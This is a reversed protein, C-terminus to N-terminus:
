DAPLYGVSQAFLVRQHVKLGLHETLGARDCNHFWAALGHAAAFLYVNGAILGVDVYYYSKQVEPDHLGPEDFGATHTLRDVDVVYILMAPAVTVGPEGPTLASARVDGGTIRALRHGPGDYRYTGDALAVYLDIEQSNSASAATRGPAGFPGAERNVGYASWLLDSLDRISLPEPGSERTTKRRMFAAVIADDPDRVPAPLPLWGEDAANGAVAERAANM